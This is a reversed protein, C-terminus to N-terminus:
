LISKNFAVNLVENGLIDYLQVRKPENTSTNVTTFLKDNSFYSSLSNSVNTFEDLELVQDANFNYHLIFRNNDETASAVSFTYDLSRLDTMTDELTDELLIEFNSDIYELVISITYDGAQVVQYGLPVQIQQSIQLESRGQVELKYAECYSYFEVQSGENIFIGDYTDEYFDTAGPLFGILIPSYGMSGSFRFWSKGYDPNDSTRLFTNDDQPSNFSIPQAHTRNIVNSDPIKFVDKRISNVYFGNKPAQAQASVITFFTLAVLLTFIRM